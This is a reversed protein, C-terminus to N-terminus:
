LALCVAAGATSPQQRLIQVDYGACEAQAHTRVLRVGEEVFALICPVKAMCDGLRPQSNFGPPHDRGVHGVETPYIRLTNHQQKKASYKGQTCAAHQVNRHALQTHQTSHPVQVKKFGDYGRLPRLGEALECTAVGQEVKWRKDEVLLGHLEKAAKALKETWGRWAGNVWTAENKESPQSAKTPKDAKAAAKAAKQAKAKTCTECFRCLPM